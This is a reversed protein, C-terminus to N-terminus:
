DVNQTIHVSQHMHHSVMGQTQKNTKAELVQVKKNSDELAAFIDTSKLYHAKNFLSPLVKLGERVDCFFFLWASSLM